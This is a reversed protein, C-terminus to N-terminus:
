RVTSRLRHLLVGALSLVITGLLAIIAVVPVPETQTAPVTPVQSEVSFFSDNWEFTGGVKSLSLASSGDLLITFHSTALSQSILRGPTVGLINLVLNGDLVMGVQAGSKLAYAPSGVFNYASATQWTPILLTFAGSSFSDNGGVAIVGAVVVISNPTVSDARTISISCFWTAAFVLCLFALKFPSNM